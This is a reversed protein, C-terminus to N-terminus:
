RNRAVSAGGRRVLVATAPGLALLRMSEVETVSPGARINDKAPEPASLGSHRECMMSTSILSVECV